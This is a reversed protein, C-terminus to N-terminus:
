RHRRRSEQDLFRRVAQSSAHRWRDVVDAGRDRAQGALTDFAPAFARRQADLLPQPDIGAREGLVLKCLLETRVDRLHGIPRRLWGRVARRGLPTAALMTRRPGSGAADGSARVLGDATLREIARYTLPRSLSWVRGIDGNPALLRAVAWGHTPAEHILALCVWEALPRDDAV